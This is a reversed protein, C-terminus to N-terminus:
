ADMEKFRQPEFVTELAKALLYRPSGSRAELATTAPGEMCEDDSSLKGKYTWARGAPCQSCSGAGPSRWGTQTLSGCSFVSGAYIFPPTRTQGFGEQHRISTPGLNLNSPCVKLMLLFGLLRLRQTPQAHRPGSVLVEFPADCTRPSFSGPNPM